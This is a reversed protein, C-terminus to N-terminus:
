APLADFNAVWQKSNREYEARRDHTWRYWALGKEQKVEIEGDEAIERLRRAVSQPTYTSHHVALRQMTGGCVWENPHKQLYRLCRQRCTLGM